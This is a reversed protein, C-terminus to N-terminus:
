YRFRVFLKNSTSVYEDPLNSGCYRFLFIKSSTSMYGDPLNSGCYRFIYLNSSTSMYGDPLNSGCYKFMFHKNNTYETYKTTVIASNLAIERVMDRVRYDNNKLKALIAEM